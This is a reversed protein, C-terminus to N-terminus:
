EGKENEKYNNIAAIRQSLTPHSYALKVIWPHPNLCSLSNKHLKKLGSVLADAYGNEAAFRDAAYEFKRSLANVFLGVFPSIFPM